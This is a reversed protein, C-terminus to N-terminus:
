PARVPGARDELRTAPGFPLSVQCVTGDMLEGWCYSVDWFPFEWSCGILRFRVIRRLQQDNWSVMMGFEVRDRLADVEFTELGDQLDLEYRQATTHADMVCLGEQLLVEPVHQALLEPVVHDVSRLRRV